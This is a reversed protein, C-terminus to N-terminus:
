ASRLKGIGSPAADRRLAALLYACALTRHPAYREGLARARAEDVAEGGTLFRECARRVGLDGAPWVDPRGLHRALFWEATWRGVGPLETLREIVAEDDLAGLGAADRPSGAIALVYRAKSRSFGLARLEEVSAAAVREPGPFAWVAGHREGYREVFRNRVALAANLSVQQATISTVLMEFPDPVLLPRLGHLREGLPRLAGDARAAPAFVALDFAAGLVHAFVTAAGDSAPEISVGGVAPGAAVPRGAVVRVLRDDEVLNVRDPGLWSIRETTLAFDFPEPIPVLVGCPLGSRKV